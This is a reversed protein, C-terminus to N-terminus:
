QGGLALAFLRARGRPDIGQVAAKLRDVRLNLGDGPPNIGNRVDVIGKLTAVEAAVKSATAILTASDDGFLKVEIPQPVATLDGILDEMLQAMEVNLGPVTQTIRARLESMIEDIPRRPGTKLRVFFDGKNAENLDGGLGAGTRRSWTDVEPM